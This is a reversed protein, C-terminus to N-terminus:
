NDSNSEIFKLINYKIKFIEYNLKSEKYKEELFTLLYTKHNLVFDIFHKKLNYYKEFLDYFVDENNMINRNFESTAFSKHDIIVKYVLADILLDINKNKYDELNMRTKFFVVICIFSVFSIYVNSKKIYKIINNIIYNNKNDINEIYYFFEQEKNILYGFLINNYKLIKSFDLFSNPYTSVKIIITYLQYDYNNSILSLYKLKKKYSMNSILIYILLKSCYNHDMKYLLYILQKIYKLKIYECNESFFLLADNKCKLTNFLEDTQYKQDLLSFYIYNKEALKYIEEMTDPLYLIKKNNDCFIVRCIKKQNGNIDFSSVLTGQCISNACVNRSNNTDINYYYKSFGSKYRFINVDNYVYVNNYIRKLNYKKLEEQSFYNLNSKLVNLNLNNFNIEPSSLTSYFFLEEYESFFSAM